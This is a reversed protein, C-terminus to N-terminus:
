NVDIYGNVDCQGSCTITLKIDTISNDYKTYNWSNWFLSAMGQIQTKNVSYDNFIISSDAQVWGTALDNNNQDTVTFMVEDSGFNNVALFNVRSGQLLSTSLTQGYTDLYIGEDSASVPLAATFMCMVVLFITFLRKKMLKDNRENELKYNSKCLHELKWRVKHKKFEKEQLVFSM